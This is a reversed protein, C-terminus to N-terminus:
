ALLDQCVRAATLEAAGVPARVSLCSAYISAYVKREDYPESHGTRRKVIITNM